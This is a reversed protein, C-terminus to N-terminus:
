SFVSLICILFFSVNLMDCANSFSSVVPDRLPIWGMVRQIRMLYEFWQVVPLGPTLWTMSVPNMTVHMRCVALILLASLM